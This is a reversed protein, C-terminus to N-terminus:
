VDAGNENPSHRRSPLAAAIHRARNFFDAAPLVHGYRVSLLRLSKQCRMAGGWLSLDIV